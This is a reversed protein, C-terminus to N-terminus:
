SSRKLVVPTRSDITRDSLFKRRVLLYWAAFKHTRSGVLISVKIMVKDSTTSHRTDSMKDVLCGNRRITLFLLSYFRSGIAGFEHNNALCTIVDNVETISNGHHTYRKITRRPHKSIMSTDDSGGGNLMRSEVFTVVGEGVRMDTFANSSLDDKEEM